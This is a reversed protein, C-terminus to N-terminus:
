KLTNVWLNPNVNAMLQLDLLGISKGTSEVFLSLGNSDSLRYSNNKIEAKKCQIETLAM